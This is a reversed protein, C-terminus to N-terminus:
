IKRKILSQDMNYMNKLKTGEVEVEEESDSFRLTEVELSNSRKM